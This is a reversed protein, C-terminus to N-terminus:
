CGRKPMQVGKARLAASVEKVQACLESGQGYTLHNQLDAALLKGGHPVSILPHNDVGFQCVPDNRHCWSYTRIPIAPASIAHGLALGPNLKAFELIGVENRSYGGAALVHAERPYFYPDGFLIMTAVHKQVAPPLRALVRRMVDAGQSYGTLVVTWRSCGMSKALATLAAVGSNVGDIVSDLYHSTLFHGKLADQIFSGAIDVAPYSLIGRGTITVGVSRGREYLEKFLAYGPTGMAQPTNEPKEGSGRASYYFVRTRASAAIAADTSTHGEETSGRSTQAASCCECVTITATATNGSLGDEVGDVPFADFTFTSTGTFGNTPGWTVQDGQIHEIVGGAQKAGSLVDYDLPQGGQWACPLTFTVWRDETTSVAVNSCHPTGSSLTASQQLTQATTDGQDDSSSYTCDDTQTGGGNVPFALFDVANSGSGQFHCGAGAFQTTVITGSPSVGPQFCFDDPNTDSSQLLRFPEAYYLPVNEGLYWYQSQAEGTLPDYQTLNAADQPQNAQFNTAADPALSLTASCNPNPGNPPSLSDSISASGGDSQLTWCGTRGNFTESWSLSIAAVADPNGSGQSIHSTYTWTGTYDATVGDTEGGGGCDTSAGISPGAALLAGSCTAIVLILGM